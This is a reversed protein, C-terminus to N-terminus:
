EGLHPENNMVLFFVGVSIARGVSNADKQYESGHCGEIESVFM